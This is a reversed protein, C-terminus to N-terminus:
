GKSAIREHQTKPLCDVVTLPRHSGHMRIFYQTLDRENGATLLASIELKAEILKEGPHLTAYEPPTVDCCAVTYPMDFAVHPMEAAAVLPLSLLSLSGVFTQVRDM